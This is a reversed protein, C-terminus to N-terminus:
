RVTQLVWFDSALSASTVYLYPMEFYGDQGWTTGWSNRVRFRDVADDYGVLVVSHAGIVSEDPSPMPVIGTAAVQASEFSSYVTFGFTVPRGSALVSKIPWLLQPVAAYTLVRDGLAASYDTQPPAQTYEAPDYPWDSEPCVGLSAVVKAGDRIQAGVDQSATGEIVRAQYWIWMRSPSLFQQTQVHNDFDVAAAIANGTCSNLDGQAYVPPMDAQTSLDVQTPLSTVAPISVQADRMDPLRPIWGYWAMDPRTRTRPRERSLSLSTTAGWHAIGVGAFLGYPTPRSSMRILYRLLKASRREAGEGTLGSRELADFLSPSGVAVAAAIKADAGLLRQLNKGHDSGSQREGPEDATPQLALYDEIPLLPARVLAWDLPRYLAGSVGASTDTRETPAATLEVGPVVEHWCTRGTGHPSPM